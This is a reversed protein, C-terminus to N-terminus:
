TRRALEAIPQGENVLPIPRGSLDPITTRAPDLGLHHYLTALFDETGVRRAAPEV